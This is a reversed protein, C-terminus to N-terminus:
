RRRGLAWWLLLAFVVVGGAAWLVWPTPEPEGIPAEADDLTESPSPTTPRTPKAAPKALPVRKIAQTTSYYLGDPGWAVAVVSNDEEIFIEDSTARDRAKNLKVRHITQEGYTGYFLDGAFGSKANEPDAIAIGVPVVIEEQVTIPDYYTGPGSPRADGAFGLVDPWGLNGGNRIRNIEDHSSPGNDTVFADGTVPDITMGYPNRLGLAIAEGFANGPAPGGHINFRYIKGGRRGPDQAASSDHVEGNSVLVFGRRDFRCSGGNHYVSAPLGEVIGDIEGEPLTIRLVRNSAGDPETAFVCLSSGDPSVDIGLLGTEGATTTRITALLEPQGDKKLEYVRGERENFYMTGDPAFAIGTVFDTGEVM